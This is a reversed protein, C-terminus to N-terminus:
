RWVRRKQSGVKRGEPALFCQFFVTIRSKGVKEREQMKEMKKKIVKEVDSNRGPEAEDQSHKEMQGYITPPKAELSGEIFPPISM